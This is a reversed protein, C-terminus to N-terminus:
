KALDYVHLPSWNGPYEKNKDLLRGNGNSGGNTAAVTLRAGNPHVALSHCNPLATLFFPKAEGPRQFFFKGSGPNGSTVAMIFGDTHFHLDFVFGDADTGVEVKHQLKGSQWDYVLITPVGQVNGGGKPQTGACALTAGTPDFVLCRAGGVDQLRDLRYLVRADLDRQCKGSAVAWHKVNGKLDGSVLSKGDPHFAVAFIDDPHGALEQQQKGDTTSWLRVKDDTGCTAILKGDSSLALGRIWGAHAQDLAWLPKAEKEVLPWCRLQGWSDAAFFRQGDAHLALAQVWGGHGTLAPLETAPDSSVDWRRITGDSGGAVLFKGCPSYRLVCMQRDPKLVMVQKPQM